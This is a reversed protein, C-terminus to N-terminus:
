KLFDFKRETTHKISEIKGFFEKKERKKNYKELDKGEFSRIIVDAFELLEEGIQEESDKKFTKSIHSVYNMYEIEIQRNTFPEKGEPFVDCVDFIVTYIRGTKSSLFDTLARDRQIRGIYRAGELIERQIEKMVIDEPCDREV